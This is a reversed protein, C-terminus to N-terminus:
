HIHSKKIARAMNNGERAIIKFNEISIIHSSNSQHDYIPSPAKLHEGFREGFTRSSLWIYKEDCNIKDCSYCYIVSNKKTM